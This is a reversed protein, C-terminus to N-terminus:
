CGSGVTGESIDTQREGIIVIKGKQLINKRHRYIHELSLTKFTKLDISGQFSHKAM